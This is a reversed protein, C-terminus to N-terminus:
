CPVQPLKGQLSGGSLTASFAVLDHSVKPRVKEFRARSHELWQELTLKNQSVDLDTIVFEDSGETQARLSEPCAHM